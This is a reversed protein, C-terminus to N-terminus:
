SEAVHIGMSFYHLYRVSHLDQFIIISAFADMVVGHVEYRLAIILGDRTNYFEVVSDLSEQSEISQKPIFGDIKNYIFQRNQTAFENQDHM